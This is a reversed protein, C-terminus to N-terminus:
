KKLLGLEIAENDIDKLVAAGLACCNSFMYGQCLTLNHKKLGAKVDEITIM